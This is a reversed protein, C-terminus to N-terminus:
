APGAAPRRFRGAIAATGPFSANLLDVWRPPRRRHRHWREAPQAFWPQPRTQWRRLALEGDAIAEYRARFTDSSRELELADDVGCIEGGFPRPPPGRRSIVLRYKSPLAM